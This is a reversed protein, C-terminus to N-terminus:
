VNNASEVVLHMSEADLGVAVADGTSLPETPTADLLQTGDSIRVVTGSMRHQIQVVHWGAREASTVSRRSVRAASPRFLAVVNGAPGDANVSGLASVFRGKGDRHGPVINPIGLFRAVATSAPRALLDSPAALQAVAGNLLVMVRDACAAAEDVDHTVIIAAPATAERLVQLTADRVGARLEPDLAAFPEDLLLVQPEAALARALAVRHRQGGSLSAVHRGSMGALQVRALLADARVWAEAAAVGRVELPFAVNKGVSLHPFLTPSQHLYVVGRREAPVATVDRGAVQVVGTTMSQLGAIARLVSTKGSGSPGLLALRQGRAVSVSFDTLGAASGFPIAAGHVALAPADGIATM